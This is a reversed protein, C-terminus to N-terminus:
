PATLLERKKEPYSYRKSGIRVGLYIWKARARVSAKAAAIKLIRLIPNKIKSKSAILLGDELYIKAMLKDIYKRHLRRNIHGERMLQYLADHVLSARMFSKTDIAPGSPGDWMYGEEIFLMGSKRLTLYKESVELGKIKTQISYLKELVYKYKRTKRYTIM